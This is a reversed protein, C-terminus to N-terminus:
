ASAIKQKALEVDQFDRFGNWLLWLKEAVALSLERTRRRSADDKLYRQVIKEGVAGHEQDGSIHIAFFEASHADVAYHRTLGSFIRGFAEPMQDEIALGIAALRLVPKEQELMQRMFRLFANTAPHRASMAVERRTLGISHGFRLFLEPHSATNSVAGAEEEIRMECLAHLIDLDAIDLDAERKALAMRSFDNVVVWAQLTWGRIQALGLAGSEVGRTFPHTGFNRGEARLEEKLRALFEANGALTAM